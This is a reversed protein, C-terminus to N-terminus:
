SFRRGWTRQDDRRVIAIRGREIICVPLPPMKEPIANVLSIRDITRLNDGIEFLQPIAARSM